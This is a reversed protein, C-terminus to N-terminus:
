DTFKLTLQRRGKEAKYKVRIELNDNGLGFALLGEAKDGEMALMERAAALVREGVATGPSPLVAENYTARVTVAGDAGVALRVKEAGAAVAHLVALALWKVAAEQPDAEAALKSMEKLPDQSGHCRAMEQVKQHLNGKDEM